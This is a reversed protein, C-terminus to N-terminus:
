TWSAEAEASGRSQPRRGLSSCPLILFVRKTPHQIDKDTKLVYNVNTCLLEDHVLLYCKKVTAALTFVAPIVRCIKV